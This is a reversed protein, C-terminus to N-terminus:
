GRHGSLSTAQRTHANLQLEYARQGGVRGCDVGDADAHEGVPELRAVHGRREIGPEEVPLSERALRSLGADDGGAVAAHDHGHPEADLTLGGDGGVAPGGRRQGPGSLAQLVHRGIQEVADRLSQVAGLHGM